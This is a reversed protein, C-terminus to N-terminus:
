AETTGQEVSSGSEEESSDGSEGADDDGFGASNSVYSGQGDPILIRSIEETSELVAALPYVGRIEGDVLEIGALMPTVKGTDPDMGDILGVQGLHFARYLMALMDAKAPNRDNSLIILPVKSEKVPAKRKAM